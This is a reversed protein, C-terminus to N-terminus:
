ISPEPFEEEPIVQGNYQADSSEASVTNATNLAGLLEEVNRFGKPADDKIMEWVRRETVIKGITRLGNNSAVIQKELRWINLQAKDEIDEIHEERIDQNDQKRKVKRYYKGERLAMTAIAPSAETTLLMFMLSITLIVQEPNETNFMNTIYHVVIQLDGLGEDSKMASFNNRIAQLREDKTEEYSTLEDQIAVVALENRSKDWWKSGAEGLRKRIESEEARVVDLAANMKVDIKANEIRIQHVLDKVIEDKNMEPKVGVSGVFMMLVSFMLTSYLKARSFSHLLTSTNMLIIWSIIGSFIASVVKYGIVLKFLFYLLVLNAAASLWPTIAYIYIWAKDSPRAHEEFVEMDIHVFKLM